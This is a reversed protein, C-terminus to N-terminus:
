RQAEVWVRAATAARRALLGVRGPPVARERKVLLVTDPTPLSVHLHGDAAEVVLSRWDGLELLRAARTAERAAGAVYGAVEEAVDDDAPDRLAGGLVLGRENLLLLGHDAGEFGAFIDAGARLRIEAELRAGEERVAQLAQVVSPDSPDESLATELRDLATDIDGEQFALFALGKLAGVHRPALALARGWADAAAAINGADVLIRAHLDHADANGRHRELGTQVVRVAADLRGASRLAEGLQLFALSDPDHALNATLSRIDDAM